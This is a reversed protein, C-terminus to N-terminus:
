GPQTGKKIDTDPALLEAPIKDRSYYRDDGYWLQGFEPVGRLHPLPNNGCQMLGAVRKPGGELTQLRNNHLNISKITRGQLEQLHTLRNGSLSIHGSVHRPFGKLSDLQNRSADFDGYLTVGSLDPLQGLDQGPIRVNGWAWIRRGVKIHRIKLAKLFAAADSRAQGALVFQSPARGDAYLGKALRYSESPLDPIANLVQSAFRAVTPGFDGQSIGYTGDPLMVTQGQENRYPKILMRGLPDLIEPDRRSILYAVLTGQRMDDAVHNWYGGGKSMCSRWGRGTSMRMVDYPHRSIVIALKDPDGLRSREATVRDFLAQGGDLGPIIKALKVTNNRDDRATGGLYDLDSYGAQELKVAREAHTRSLYDGPKLKPAPMPLYIRHTAADPFVTGTHRQDFPQDTPGDEGTAMKRYRRTESLEFPRQKEASQLHIDITDIGKEALEQLEKARMEYRNRKRARVLRLMMGKLKPDPSDLKAFVRDVLKRDAQRARTRLAAVAEASMPAFQDLPHTQDQADAAEALTHLTNM